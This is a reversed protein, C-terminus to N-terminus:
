ELAEALRAIGAEMSRRARSEVEGIVLGTLTGYQIGFPLGDAGIAVAAPFVRVVEEAILGIQPVAPDGYPAMYRFAVPRLGFLTAGDPLLSVIGRKFRASSPALPCTNPASTVTVTAMGTRVTAGATVTVNNTYTGFANIRVQFAAAGVSNLTGAITQGPIVGPGTAQVTFTAGPQAPNTTIVKCEVSEIGPMTHNWGPPPAMLGVTFDGPTSTCPVTATATQGSNVSATTPSCTFGSATASISYQGPVVNNFTVSGGANTTGTLTGGPGVATVSAGSIPTNGPTQVVNVVLTGVNPSCAIDGVNTTQGATVNATKTECTHNSLTTTVTQSGAPVQTITFNGSADTTVSPQGPIQVTAGPQPQGGVVVRGTVTGTTPAQTTCPFNVETDEDAEVVATQDGPCDVGSISSISVTYTGPDLNLVVYNGNSDTTTTTVVQSGQRVTVTVGSRGSGDVTVRGFIDGQGPIFGDDILGFFEALKADCQLSLAV